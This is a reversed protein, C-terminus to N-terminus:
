ECFKGTLPANCKPCIMQSCPVGRRHSVKEGCKPCVCEETGGLGQGQKKGWGQGQGTQSGHGQPGTGDLNPMIVDGGRMQIAKGYILSRAIKKHASHLIRLYTIRSIGMKIAAEEQNLDDLDTSRIAEVEDLTLVEEQLNRLPVGVPKFYTIEPCFHITRLLKKRGRKGNRM